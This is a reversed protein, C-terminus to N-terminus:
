RKISQSTNVSGLTFRYFQMRKYDNWSNKSCSSETKVMKFTFAVQRNLSLQAASARKKCCKGKANLEDVCFVFCVRLIDGLLQQRDPRDSVKLFDAGGAILFVCDVRDV